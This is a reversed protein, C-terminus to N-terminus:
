VHRAERQAAEFAAFVEAGTQMLTPNAFDYHAPKEDVFIQRAFHFGSTDDFAEVAVVTHDLGVLKYFLPTGCNRCFQREAWESSRYTALESEDEVDLSAGVQIGLFPGASWRRCTSCHCAHYDLEAPTASFQVAGCVCHGKLLSTSM